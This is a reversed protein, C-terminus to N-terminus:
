VADEYVVETMMGTAMHYLNHCHFLWRGPNEADFAIAVRAMPPVLVTDRVAGALGTGNLGIVQFHHGHLHMPHTMMSHNMMDIVVRQGTRVALPKHNEWTRGDISWAYPMMGGTLTVSHVVDAPRAALPNAAVLAAELSLDLPPANAEALAAIKAVRAGTAAIIIGTRARDGERQALVPVSGGAPITVELDLRQGQGIPFRTGSRAAIADGDVAVLTAEAGGFDIWFATSTAGNILRVLVLGGPESRVVLPDDLTRDNALFADYEVDNLDMGGMMGAMDGMANGMDGMAGDMSGTDMGGMNMGNGMAMGGGQGMGAAGTLSALIEEPDRFSFDHLLVTVEQRDTKLDANSRVVLPAAMLRQEQLGHHSHMWHTGPRAAFDYVQTGGAVIPKAYGSDVVGDQDPPPRQGHWHIITPEAARNELAVSFREGPDLTLGSTGDAAEIGYVPAARGNVEITRRVVGIKRTSQSGFVPTRGLLATAALATTSALFGRRNIFHSM